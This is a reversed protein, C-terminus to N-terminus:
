EKEFIAPSCNPLFRAAEQSTKPEGNFYRQVAISVGGHAVMLVTQNPFREALEDLLSAVRSCFDDLPEIQDASGDFGPLWWQDFIGLDFFAGEFKGFNREAIREDEKITIARESCIAEATQRARILPSTVAFDIQTEALADRLSEAQAMGAENLPIDTSGQLLRKANWETQGHRVFILKM